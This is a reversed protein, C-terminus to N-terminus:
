LEDHALPKPSPLAWRVDGSTAEFTWSQLFQADVLLDLVQPLQPPALGSLRGLVDRDVAEHASGATSHADLVLALLRPATGLPRLQRAGCVRLAWGAARARSRRGPAQTCVTPDLLRGTLGQRCSDPRLGQLCLWGASELAQHPVTDAGLRMGRVLGTPIRVEGSRTSRLACQLALLRTAATAETPLVAALYSLMERVRIEVTLGGPTRRPAPPVDAPPSHLATDPVVAAHSTAGACAACIDALRWERGGREWAM